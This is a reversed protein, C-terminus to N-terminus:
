TGPARVPYHYTEDPARTIHHSRHFKKLLAAEDEVEVDLTYVFLIEGSKRADYGRRRIHWGRLEPEPIGLTRLIVAKLETERHDLGLRVETLRLM